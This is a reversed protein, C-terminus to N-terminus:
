VLKIVRERSFCCAVVNVHGALYVAVSIHFGVLQTHLPLLTECGYLSNAWRGQERGDQLDFGRPM